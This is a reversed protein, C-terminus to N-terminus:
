TQAVRRFLMRLRAKTQVTSRISYLIIEMASLSYSGSSIRLVILLEFVLKFCGGV